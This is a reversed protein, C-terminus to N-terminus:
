AVEETVELIVETGTMEVEEEEDPLHLVEETGVEEEGIIMETIMEIDKLLEQDEM